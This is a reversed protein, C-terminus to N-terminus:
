IVDVSLPPLPTVWICVYYPLNCPNLVISRALICVLRPGPLPGFDLFITYVDNLYPGEKAARVIGSRGVSLPHPISSFLLLLLFSIFLRARTSSILTPFTAYSRGRGAVESGSFQVAHHLFIKGRNSIGAENRGLLIALGHVALQGQRFM